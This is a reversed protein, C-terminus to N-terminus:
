YKDLLIIFCNYDFHVSEYLHFDFGLSEISEDFFMLVVEWFLSGEVGAGAGAAGAVGGFHMELEKLLALVGEGWDLSFEDLEILLEFDIEVLILFQGCM